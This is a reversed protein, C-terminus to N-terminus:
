LFGGPDVDPADPAKGSVPPSRRGDHSLGYHQKRPLELKAPVSSTKKEGAVLEFIMDFDGPKTTKGGAVRRQEGGPYANRYFCGVLWPVDERARSTLVLRYVKGKELKPAKFAAEKWKLFRTVKCSKAGKPKTSWDRWDTYFVARALPEAGAAAGAGKAPRLEVVLDDSPVGLTRALRLRIVAVEEGTATFTQVQSVTGHVEMWGDTCNPDVAAPNPMKEIRAMLKAVRGAREADADKAAAKLQEYAPWGIRALEGAAAERKKFDDAGLLKILAAIRARLKPDIRKAPKEAAGTGGPEPKEGAAGPPALLALTALITAARRRV